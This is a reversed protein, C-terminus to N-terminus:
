ELEANILKELQAEPIFGSYFKGNIFIAPTGNVGVSQGYELDNEIRAQLSGDKDLICNQFKEMDLQLNQSMNEITAPSLDPSSTYLADHMEKYKNQKGACHAAIHAAMAQQHMPLPFDKYVWRVKDGFKERINKAGDQMRKCFPCEYDSFEVVTVKSSKNGSLVPSDGVEIKISPPQPKELVIKINYEEKLEQYYDGLLQEQFRRNFAQRLVEKIAEYPQGIEAKNQKYYDKLFSEDVPVFNKTVVEDLLEDVTKSQEKAKIELLKEYVLQEATNLQIQYRDQANQYLEMRAKTDVEEVSISGGKFEIINKKPQCFVLGNMAIFAFAIFFIRKSRQNM